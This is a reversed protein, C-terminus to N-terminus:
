RTMVEHGNDDLESDRNARLDGTSTIGSETSGAFELTTRRVRRTSEKQRRDANAGSCSFAGSKHGSLDSGAITESKLPPLLPPRRILNKMPYHLMQRDVGKWSDVKTVANKDLFEFAPGDALVSRSQLKYEHFFSAVPPYAM